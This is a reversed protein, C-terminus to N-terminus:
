QFCVPAPLVPSEFVRPLVGACLTVSAQTMMAKCRAKLLGAATVAPCCCSGQHLALGGRHDLRWPPKRLLHESRSQRGAHLARGGRGRWLLLQLLCTSTNYLQVPVWAQSVGLCLRQQALHTPSSSRPKAQSPQALSRLETCDARGWSLWEHPHLLCPTAQTRLQQAPHLHRATCCAANRNRGM